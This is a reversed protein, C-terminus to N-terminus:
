EGAELWRYFRAAHLLTLNNVDVPKGDWRPSVQPDVTGAVIQSAARLAEVRLSSAPTFPMQSRLLDYDRRLDDLERVLRSDTEPM